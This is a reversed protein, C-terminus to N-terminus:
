FFRLRALAALNAAKLGWGPVRFQFSTKLDWHIGLREVAVMNCTGIAGTGFRKELLTYVSPSNEPLTLRVTGGSIEISASGNSKWSRNVWALNTQNFLSAELIDGINIFYDVLFSYPIIEWATLVATQWDFGFHTRLASGAQDAYPVLKVAGRYTVKEQRKDTRLFKYELGSPGSAFPDLRANTFERSSFAKVPIRTPSDSM